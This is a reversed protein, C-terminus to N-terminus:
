HVPLSMPQSMRPGRCVLAADAAAVRKMPWAKLDQRRALDEAKEAPAVTGADTIRRMGM